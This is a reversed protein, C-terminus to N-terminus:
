QDLDSPDEPNYDDDIITVRVNIESEGAALNAGTTVTIRVTFTENGERDNDGITRIAITGETGGVINRREQEIM